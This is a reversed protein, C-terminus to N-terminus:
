EVPKLYLEMPFIDAGNIQVINEKTGATFKVPLGTLEKMRKGFDLGREVVDPTTLPGLNANNILATVKLRSATEISRLSEVTEEPEATLFRFPNYVYLMEYEREEILSAYQGLAVAGADDGGVDLIVTSDGMRIKAPITGPLSPVDLNTSAFNTAILEIGREEFLDKCDNTRFYPNVIDLDVRTVREGQDALYLALNVALNTKGCGYHGTIVILKQFNIM